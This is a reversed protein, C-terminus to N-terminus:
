GESHQASPPEISSGCMLELISRDKLLTTLECKRRKAMAICVNVDKSCDSDRVHYKCGASRPDSVFTHHLKVRRAVDDNREEAVDM